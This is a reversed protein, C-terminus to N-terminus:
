VEVKVLRSMWFVGIGLWLGAFAIMVWGRPDTFLPAVYSYQTVVLYLLFLPPLLGLVWASLRGEASLSAVQRRMYERERMTAAVTDLLEALNGGVQRQIRIAMVVWEFDKSGFREAVGDLAEEVSVGLRTEVLVRRFESAIPDSGEKVITDVSQQLSLGAALAGSMLQLTDPLVASFKRRRRSGRIVLVIWPAAAGLIIVFLGLVINGAALLVGVLGAALFVGIHILLWEAPKLESGAADLRRAIRTELDRNRKLVGAAADKAQSMAQDADLRPLHHEGRGGATAAPYVTVRDAASMPPPPRPVLLMLLAVLGAGLGLVGAYLAWGPLAPGGADITPVSLGAVAADPDAAVKAFANATLTGTATPLEVAITTDNSTLGAPVDASVLVQRQLADAEDAFATRLADSSAPIVSGAGARALAELDPDATDTASDLSIVDVLTDSRKVSRLVSQLSTDTTDAGDSLVLLQRQGETGAVGIAALVGDYLRTDRSLTLGDLVSRAADRDLTPAQATTVDAAFTVIGVYVDAPATDLFTEAAAKAADFRAGRMSNSTDIALIATRRVVDSGSAQVATAETPRGGITMSVSGLDVSSGAPVSVLVDVGGDTAEIHSISAGAPDDAATAPPTGGLLALGTVVALVATPLLRRTRM